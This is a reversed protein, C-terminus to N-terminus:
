LMAAGAAPVVIVQVTGPGAVKLPWPVALIETVQPLPLVPPTTETTRVLSQPSLWGPSSVTVTVGGGGAGVM